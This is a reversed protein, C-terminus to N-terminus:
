SNSSEPLDEPTRYLAEAQLQAEDILSQNLSAVESRLAGEFVESLESLKALLEPAPGIFTAMLHGVGIVAKPTPPSALMLFVQIQELESVRHAFHKDAMDLVEDHAKKLEENLSDM